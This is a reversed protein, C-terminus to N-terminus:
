KTAQETQAESSQAEKSTTDQITKGLSLLEKEQLMKNLDLLVILRSNEDSQQIKNSSTEYNRNEAMVVIGKIYDAHIKTSILAPTPQITSRPVNIIETVKDVIIGFGNENIETIIINGERSEHDRELSFRKELDIVVIIKGRLNFIGRIFTLANPIPTIEPFRIIEQLETIEVAYEEKDLEFVVLQIYEEVKKEHNKDQKAVNRIIEETNAM